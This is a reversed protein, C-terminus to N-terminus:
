MKRTKEVNRKVKKLIKKCLRPKPSKMKTNLKCKIELSNRKKRLKNILRRKFKKKM